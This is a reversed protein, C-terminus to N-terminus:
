DEFRRILNGFKDWKLAHGPCVKNGDADPAISNLNIGKHPCIRCVLKEKKYIDELTAM